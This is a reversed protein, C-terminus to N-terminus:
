RMVFLAVASLGLALILFIFGFAPARRFWPSRRDLSIHGAGTFLLAFAAALYITELEVGGAFLNVDVRVWIASILIGVVASAAAPTFLGIILLLGAVLETVGTIWALLTAQQFGFATLVTAFGEIGPGELIGFVKQLGHALVLAGLVVRLVLLGLDAGVHWRHPDPRRDAETDPRTLVTTDNTDYPSDYAATSQAESPRFYDSESSM